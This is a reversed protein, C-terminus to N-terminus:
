VDLKLGSIVNATMGSISADALGPTIEAQVGNKTVSTVVGGVASISMSTGFSSVDGSAGGASINMSTGVASLRMSSGTASLENHSGTVSLVQNSGTISTGVSSGTLSTGISSGTLSNSTTSGTLRNEVHMGTASNVNSIGTASNQNSVGDATSRTSVGTAAIGVNLGVASNSNTAGTVNNSNSAGIASSDTSAGVTSTRVSTGVHSEDNSSGVKSYSKTSGIESHNTTEDGYFESYTNGESYSKSLTGSKGNDSASYSYGGGLSYSASKFDGTAYEGDIKSIATDLNPTSRTGYSISRSDGYSCTYDNGVNTMERTGNPMINKNGKQEVIYSIQPVDTDDRSRDVMVTVGAEPITTMTESLKVWIPESSVNLEPFEVYVGKATFPTGDDYYFTKVEPDFNPMGKDLMWHPHYQSRQSSKSVVVGLMSGVHTASADLEHVNAKAPAATFHNSYSGDVNTQHSVSIIVFKQGDLEPRMLCVDDRNCDDKAQTAKFMHGPKFKPSSCEGSLRFGQSEVSWSDEDNLSTALDQSVGYQFIRYRQFNNDDDNGDAYVHLDAPANEEWASQPEGLINRTGQATQKQQYNFSLLYDDESLSAQRTFTYYIKLIDSTDTTGAPPLNIYYPNQQPNNAFIVTHSTDDHVFYFYGGVKHLLSQIFGWDTEGMQMWDQVRYTALSGLGDLDCAIGWKNRVIEEIVEKITMQSFQRYDNVLSLRWLAPRLTCTYAGSQQMSIDAVVGNFFSVYAPDPYTGTKADEPLGIRITAPSGIIKSFDIQRPEDTGPLEDNARFSVQYEFLQSIGEQGNFSEIRIYKDDLEGGEQRIVFDLSTRPPDNGYAVEEVPTIPQLFDASAM